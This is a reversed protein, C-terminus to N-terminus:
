CRNHRYGSYVREHTRQSRIQTALTDFTQKESLTQKGYRNGSVNCHGSSYMALGGLISDSCREVSAQLLAVGEHIVDEQCYGLTRRCRKRYWDSGHVFEVDNFRSNLPHLQMVGRAGVRSEVFPNWRSEHWMVAVVLWPDVEQAVSEFAVMDALSRIRQECSFQDNHCRAAYVTEGDRVYLTLRQLVAESIEDALKQHRENWEPTCLKPEQASVVTPWIVLAAVMTAMILNKM